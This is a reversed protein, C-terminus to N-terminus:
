MVDNLVYDASYFFAISGLAFLSIYFFHPFRSNLGNYIFYGIVGASLILQVWVIDFPIVFESFLVAILTIGFAYALLRKTKKTDGLYVWIM